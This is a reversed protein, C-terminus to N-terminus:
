VSSARAPRSSAAHKRLQKASAPGRSSFIACSGILVSSRIDCTAFKRPSSGTIADDLWAALQPDSVDRQALQRAVDNIWMAERLMLIDADTFELRSLMEPRNIRNLRQPLRGFMPDAIWDVDVQQTKIWESLHYHIRPVIEREAYRHFTDIFDLALNLHDQAASIAMKREDSPMVRRPPRNRECGAISVM